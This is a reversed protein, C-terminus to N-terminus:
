VRSWIIVFHDGIVYSSLTAPFVGSIKVMCKNHVGFVTAEYGLVNLEGPELPICLLDFEQPESLPPLTLSSPSANVKVGDSIIAQSTHIHAHTHSSSCEEEERVERGVERGGMCVRNGVQSFRYLRLMLLKYSM